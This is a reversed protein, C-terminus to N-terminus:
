IGQAPTGAASVFTFQRVEAVTRVVLSALFKLFHQNRESARIKHMWNERILHTRVAKIHLCPYSKKRDKSIADWKCALIGITEVLRKTQSFTHLLMEHIPMGTQHFIKNGRDLSYNSQDVLKHRGSSLVIRQMFASFRSLILRCLVFPPETASHNAHQVWACFPGPEFRLRSATPYCDSAFQECGSHRQEGVLLIPLLGRLPQPPLQLGPPFYHCGVAPNIVWTVQPSVALFQSWSPLRTNVVKVKKVCYM